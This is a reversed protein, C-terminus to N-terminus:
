SQAVAAQSRQIAIAQAVASASSRKDGIIRGLADLQEQLFRVRRAYYADASSANMQVYYGTGIDVLVRDAADACLRGAVYVMPTLPLLTEAGKNPAGALVALTGVNLAFREQAERLEGYSRMLM